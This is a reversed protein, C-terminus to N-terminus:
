KESYYPKIKKILDITLLDVMKKLRLLETPYEITAMQKYIKRFNFYRYNYDKDYLEAKINIKSPINSILNFEGETYDYLSIDIIYSFDIKSDNEEEKFFKINILEDNLKSNLDDYVYSKFEQEINNIREIEDETYVFDQSNLLVDASNDYKNLYEQMDDTLDRLIHKKNFLVEKPFYSKVLILDNENIKNQSFIFSNFLFCISIIFIKKIM